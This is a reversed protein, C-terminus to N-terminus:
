PPFAHIFDFPGDDHGGSLSGTQSGDGIGDGLRQDADVAHPHDVGDDAGQVTLSDGLDIHDHAIQPLFECTELGFIGTQGEDFIGIVVGAVVNGGEIHCPLMQLIGEDEVAILQHELIGDQVGFKFAGAVAGDPGVALGVFPQHGGVLAADDGGARSGAAAPAPLQVAEGAPAGRVACLQAAM